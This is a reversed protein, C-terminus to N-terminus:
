EKRPRDRSLQHGTEQKHQSLYYRSQFISDCGPFTCKFCTQKSAGETADASRKKANHVLKRHQESSATSFLGFAPCEDCVDPRGRPLEALVESLRGDDVEAMIDLMSLFHGPHRTDQCPSPFQSGNKRLFAVAATARVPNASCHSCASDTCKKLLLLYTSRHCHKAFLQLRKQTLRLTPSDRIKTVSSKLLKDYEKHRTYVPTDDRCPVKTSAM